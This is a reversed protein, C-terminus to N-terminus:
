RLEVDGRRSGTLVTCEERELGWRLEKRIAPALLLTGLVTCATMVYWVSQWGFRQQLPGIMALGLSAIISGSGNIFGTVAMLDNRGGIAVDESLDVAVASTIINIPGSILCGVLALLVLLLPLPLFGRAGTEAFVCLFPILLTTFTAIVCARRGGYIDSLTGVIIGGAFM